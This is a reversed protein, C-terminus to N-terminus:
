QLRIDFSLLLSVAEPLAFVAKTLTNTRPDIFYNKAQSFDTETLNAGHFLTGALDCGHFTSAHLNTEGFVCEHLRCDEFPTNPLPLGSFNCADIICNTFACALFRTSCRSFDVGVFTTDIFRVDNLITGVFSSLRITCKEFVCEAFRTGAMDVSLWTCERFTINQFDKQRLSTQETHIGEFADDIYSAERFVDAM